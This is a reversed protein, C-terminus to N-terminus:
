IELDKLILSWQAGNCLFDCTKLNKKRKVFFYAGDSGRLKPHTLRASVSPLRISSISLPLGVFAL